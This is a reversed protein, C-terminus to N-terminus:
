GPGAPLLIRITTGRDPNKSATITGGHLEVIKKAIFLGLGSGDKGADTKGRYFPQFIKENESPDIGKGSDQCVWTANEGERGIQVNVIDGENSFKIANDLVNAIARELQAYDAFATATGLLHFKVSLHDSLTKLQEIISQTLRELSVPERQIPANMEVRSLVLLQEILEESESIDQEMQGLLRSNEPPQNREQLLELAIRMRALPSKLEHSILALFEKRQQLMNQLKEAMGDFTRGLEAIEDKGQINARKELRGEAWDQGLRHL